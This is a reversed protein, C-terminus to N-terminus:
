FLLQLKDPLKRRSPRRPRKALSSESSNWPSSRPPELGGKRWALCFLLYSRFGGLVGWNPMIAIRWGSFFCLFMRMGAEEAVTSATRTKKLESSGDGTNLTPAFRDPLDVAAIKLLYAETRAMSVSYATNGRRTTSFFFFFDVTYATNYLPNKIHDWILNLCQNSQNKWFYKIM